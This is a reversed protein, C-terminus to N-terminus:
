CFRLRAAGAVCKIQWICSCLHCVCGGQRTAETGTSSESTISDRLGGAAETRSYSSSRRRYSPPLYDDSTEGRSYVQGFSGSSSRPPKLPSARGGGTTYFGGAASTSSPLQDASPWKVRTGTAGDAPAKRM